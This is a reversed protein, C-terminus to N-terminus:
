HSNKEKIIGPSMCRAGAGEHLINIFFYLNHTVKQLGFGVVFNGIVISEMAKRLNLTM